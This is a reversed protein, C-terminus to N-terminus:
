LRGIHSAHRGDTVRDRRHITGFAAPWAELHRMNPRYMFELLACENQPGKKVRYGECIAM